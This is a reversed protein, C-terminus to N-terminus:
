LASSKKFNKMETVLCMDFYTITDDAYIKTQEIVILSTVILATRKNYAM